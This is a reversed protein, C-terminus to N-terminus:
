NSVQLCLDVVKNSSLVAPDKVGPPLRFVELPSFGAHALRFAQLGADRDLLLVQRPFRDRLEELLLAQKDTVHLGFLSTGYVGLRYGFTTVWLADFPGECVILAKPNSCRWLIDLGLLTDSPACLGAPLDRTPTISLARYRLEEDPIISRGTWSLLKGSRGRLPIIIRYAFPGRVAYHLQYTEILWLIQREKYGRNRLYDWFLDALSGKTLLKFEKLLELQKPKSKEGVSFRARVSGIVEDDSPLERTETGALQNATEVSCQLLLQILRSRSKGRHSNNRWCHWGKGRLSICMHQSPDEPGCLPCRISIEGRPTNPGRTVYDIKYQRLFAPWDFAM